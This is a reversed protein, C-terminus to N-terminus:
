TWTGLSKRWTDDLLHTKMRNLSSTGQTWWGLSISFPSFDSILLSSHDLTQRLPRTRCDAHARIGDQLSWSGFPGFDRHETDDRSRYHQCVCYKFSKYCLPLWVSIVDFTEFSFKNCFDIVYPWRIRYCCFAQFIFHTWWSWRCWQTFSWSRLSRVRRIFLRCCSVNCGSFPDACPIHQCYLVTSCSCFLAIVVHM